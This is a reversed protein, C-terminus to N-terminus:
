NERFIQGWRPVINGVLIPYLGATTDTSNRRRVAPRPPRSHERVREVADRLSCCGEHVPVEERGQGRLIGGDQGADLKLLNTLVLVECRGGTGTETRDEPRARCVTCLECGASRFTDQFRARRWPRTQFTRGRCCGGPMTSIGPFHSFSSSRDQTKPDAQSVNSQKTLIPACSFDDKQPPARPLPIAPGFRSPLM